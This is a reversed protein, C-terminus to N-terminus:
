FLKSVVERTRQVSETVEDEVERRDLSAFAPDASAIVNWARDAEEEAIELDLQFGFGMRERHCISNALGIVAAMPAFEGAEDPRHHHLIMSLVPESFGWARGLAHGVEAHSVDFASTEADILSCVGRECTGVVAAYEEPRQSVLLIRGVDHLLGGLYAGDGDIAQLRDGLRKAGIACGLSHEWITRPEVVGHEFRFSEVLASSVVLNRVQSIGLYAVAHQISKVECRLGYYSSNIIRLVKSTLTPDRLIISAVQEARTSPDDAIRNVQVAVEPLVGIDELDIGAISQPVGESVPIPNTSM